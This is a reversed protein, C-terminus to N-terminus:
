RRLEPIEIIRAEPRPEIRHRGAGFYTCVRGTPWRIAVGQLTVQRKPNDTDAGVIEFLEDAGRHVLEDPANQRIWCEFRIGAEAPIEVVIPGLGDHWLDPEIFATRLAWLAEQLAHASM